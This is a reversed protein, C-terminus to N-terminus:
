RLRLPLTPAVLPADLLDAAAFFWDALPQWAPPPESWWSLETSLFHSGHAVHYTTGDIGVTPRHLFPALTIAALRDLLANAADPDFAADAAFITGEGGVGRTDPLWVVRRVSWRDRRLDYLTWSVRPTFSPECRLHLRRLAAHHEVLGPYRDPVRLLATPDTSM